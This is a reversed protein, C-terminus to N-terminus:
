TRHMNAKFATHQFQKCTTCLVCIHIMKAGGVTVPVHAFGNARWGGLLHRELFRIHLAVNVVSALVDRTVNILVTKRLQVAAHVLARHTCCGAERCKSGGSCCNHHRQGQAQQPARLKEGKQVHTRSLKYVLLYFFTLQKCITRMGHGMRLVWVGQYM